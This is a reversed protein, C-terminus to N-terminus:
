RPVAQLMRAVAGAAAEGSDICDPVGVGRYAAGALALRPHHELAADIRTLRDPHGLTYQPMGRPWRHVRTFRPEADIGLLRLEDRAAVILEDDALETVDRSGFRGLFVRILSQDAPARGDWKNSSWTCALVDSGEVKPVVYGYGDLPREVDDAGFALTVIAPSAYSIEALAAALAADLEAVIEAAAFAPVALVVADSWVTRGDALHLAYGGDQNRLQSAAGVTFTTRELSGAVARVLEEMGGRLSVFPPYDGPVPTQAALGALVSGHEMELVRLNPFTAELSLQEGDGGYIGTMLPEVLQEYAEPGLRRAVFSAISEDGDLSAPPLHTESRLRALGEASLLASEALADLDAPIMGTLGEPLRHLEDGHRVFSRAFEPRRSILRTGLGLEECLGVGRPKRSLFSDAAGEVLFSDVQETLLKGGLRESREVLTIQADPVLAELRRAAALGAIGGGVVALKTM